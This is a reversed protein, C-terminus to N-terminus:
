VVFKVDLLGSLKNWYIMRNKKMERRVQRCKCRHVIPALNLHSCGTLLNRCTISEIRPFWTLLESRTMEERGIWSVHEVTGSVLVAAPKRGCSAELPSKMVCDWGGLVQMLVPTIVLKGIM